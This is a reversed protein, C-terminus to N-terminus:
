PEYHSIHEELVKMYREPEEAHAMHASNDFVVWRSGRIGNHVTGAVVETAEDFAGSTM